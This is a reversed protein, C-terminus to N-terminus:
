HHLRHADGYVLDAANVGGNGNRLEDTEFGSLRRSVMAILALHGSLEDM